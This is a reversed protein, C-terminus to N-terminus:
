RVDVRGYNAGPDVTGENAIVNDACNDACHETCLDACFDTSDTCLNACLYASGDADVHHLLTSRSSRQSCKNHKHM